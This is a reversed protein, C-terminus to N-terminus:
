DHLVQMGDDGKHRKKDLIEELRMKEEDLMQNIVDLTRQPTNPNTVGHKMMEHWTQSQNKAQEERRTRKQEVHECKKLAQMIHFRVEHLAFDTPTAKFADQLLKKVEQTNKKM